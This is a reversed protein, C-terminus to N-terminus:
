SDRLADIQATLAASSRGDVAVRELTAIRDKLTGVQDRLVGSRASSPEPAANATARSCRSAFVWRIAAILAIATLVHIMLHM